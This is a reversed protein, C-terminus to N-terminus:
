RIFTKLVTRFVDTNARELWEFAVMERSVIDAGHSRMRELALQKDREQRSGVGEEVVFVRRGAALLDLVTQQVCVHTETGTVIWQHREGGPAKWLLGGSVASFHEKEVVAGTKLQSRLTSLTAGLGQPYQESALVPVGLAQAVGMLWSVHAVVSRGDHIAPLLREQLDVLLLVSQKACM